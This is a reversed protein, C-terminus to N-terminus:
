FLVAPIAADNTKAPIRKPIAKTVVLPECINFLFHVPYKSFASRVCLRKVLALPAFSWVTARVSVAIIVELILWALVFVLRPAVVAILHSVIDITQHNPFFPRSKKFGFGISNEEGITRAIRSLPFDCVRRTILGCGM